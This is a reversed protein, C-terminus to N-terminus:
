DAPIRSATRIRAVIAHFAPLSRLSELDPDREMQAPSRLGRDVAERLAALAAEPDGSVAELCALNYSPIWADPRVEQAQRYYRAAADSDGVRRASGGAQVLALYDNPMRALAKRYSALAEAFQGRDWYLDGIRRYVRPFTPDVAVAQRYWAEAEDDDGRLAAIVGLNATAEVFSPTIEIADLYHAEARDLEGELLAINGLMVHVRSQRPERALSELYVERAEGLRDQRLLTLALVNRASTNSPMEALLARAAAESEAWRGQQALHRADELMNRYRIGDKPDLGARADRDAKPDLYGLAQLMEETESDIPNDASEVAVLRSSELIDSLAGDLSLSLDPSSDHLNVLEGPDGELNYLEPRPARIWKWGGSRVGYLPAMGFGSESLLSECYQPLEVPPRDGTLSPVLDVGQTPGPDLKLVSLVTPMIDVTRVPGHYEAGPSFLTPLRLILPVRITADYIFIGHTKEGHEGLSEGHDSTFVVLTSDLAGLDELTGLIRGVALDVAAIEADYPTLTRLQERLSPEYPQHPDFFHVWVFFPPADPTGDWNEFWSVVRDATRPAPRDRIMFTPPADESWLDDDYGDFGQGLGYRRNLVLASVFAQTVYGSGHFREAMTVAGPGLAYAGNDRVGHAPPYLGTLISAHSPLTIPAATAANTCRVGEAALTDIFTTRAARYGYCGLRDARLTDVTILLINTDPARGCGLNLAAIALLAATVRLSWRGKERLIEISLAEM